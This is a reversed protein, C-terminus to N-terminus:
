NPAAEGGGSKETVRIAARMWPHFCCQFKHLGVGAGTVKKRGGPAVETPDVAGPALVCEPATTLGSNLPPIRGGGFNAVETFTHPRGGENELRVDQGEEISVYSPDNRWSPHGVTSESLPSFLLLDFEGRTVDGTSQACGVPAWRPDAPDCDDIIAIKKGGGDEGSIRQDSATAAIALLLAFGVFVRYRTQMDYRWQNTTRFLPYPVNRAM